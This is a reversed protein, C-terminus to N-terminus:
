LSTGLNSGINIKNFTCTVSKQKSLYKIKIKINGNFSPFNFTFKRLNEQGLLNTNYCGITFLNNESPFDIDLIFFTETMNSFTQDFVNWLHFKLNDEFGDVCAVDIDKQASLWDYYILAEKITMRKLYSTEEDYTCYEIDVPHSNIENMVIHPFNTGVIANEIKEEENDYKLNIVILLLIIAMVFFLMSYLDLIFFTQAKRNKKYIKM